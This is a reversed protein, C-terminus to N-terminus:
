AIWLARITMTTHTKIEMRTTIKQRVTVPKLDFVKDTPRLDGRKALYIWLVRQTSKGLYVFRPKTKIGNGFPRVTIQGDKDVDQYQVRLLEGLRLGTDTLFKILAVDRAYTTRHRRYVKAGERSIEKTWEASYLLRKLESESFAKVEKLRFKPRVLNTDPRKVGMDLNAWKFFARLTKWYNALSPDSLKEGTQHIRFPIYETKLYGMLRNLDTQTISDVEVNGLVRQIIVMQQAFLESTREAYVARTYLNFGEVAKGLEM